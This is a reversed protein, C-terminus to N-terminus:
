LSNKQEKQQKLVKFLFEVLNMATYNDHLCLYAGLLPFVIFITYKPLTLSKLLLKVCRTRLTSAFSAMSLDDTRDGQGRVQVNLLVEPSPIIYLPVGM